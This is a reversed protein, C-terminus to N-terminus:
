KHKLKKKVQKLIDVLYDFGELVLAVDTVDLGVHPRNQLWNGVDIRARAVTKLLNIDIDLDELKM